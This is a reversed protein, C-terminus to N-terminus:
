SQGVLHEDSTPPDSLDPGAAAVLRAGLETLARGIALEEGVIPVQPDVPNRRAMGVAEMQGKSTALTATARCEDDDEVVELDIHCSLRTPGTREGSQDVVQCNSSPVFTSEHGDDWRVRLTADGREVVEGSRPQVGLTNTTVEIRDGVRADM